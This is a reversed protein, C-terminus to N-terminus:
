KLPLPRGAHRGAGHDIDLRGFVLGEHQRDLTSQRRGATYVLADREFLGTIEEDRVDGTRDPHRAIVEDIVEEPLPNHDATIM